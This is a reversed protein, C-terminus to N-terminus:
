GAMATDPSGAGPWLEPSAMFSIWRRTACNGRPMPRSHVPRDNCSRRDPSWAGISMPSESNTTNKHRAANYSLQDIGVETSSTTGSPTSPATSATVKRPIGLSTNKM